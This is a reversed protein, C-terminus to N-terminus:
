WNDDADDDNNNDNNDDDNDDNDNDDNDNDDNDNDDNDDDNHDEWKTLAGGFSRVVSRFKFLFLKKTDLGISIPVFFSIAKM